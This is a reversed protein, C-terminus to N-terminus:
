LAMFAWEVESSWSDADVRWLKRNVFRYELTEIVVHRL